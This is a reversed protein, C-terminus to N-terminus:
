FSKSQNIRFVINAIHSYIDKIILNKTPNSRTQRNLDFRSM